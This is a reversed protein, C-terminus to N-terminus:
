LGLLPTAPDSSQGVNEMELSFCGFGPSGLLSAPWTMRSQRVPAPEAILDHLFQSSNSFTSGKGMAAVEPHM